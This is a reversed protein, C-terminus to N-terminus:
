NLGNLYVLIKNLVLAGEILVFFLLPKLFSEVILSCLRMINFLYYM